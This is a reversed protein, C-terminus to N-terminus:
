VSGRMPKQIPKKVEVEKGSRIRCRFDRRRIPCHPPLEKTQLIAKTNDGDDDNAYELKDKARCGDM